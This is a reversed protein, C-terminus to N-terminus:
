TEEHVVYTVVDGTFFAGYCLAITAFYAEEETTAVVRGPAIWSVFDDCLKEDEDSLSSRDGNVLASALFAPGRILEVRIAM